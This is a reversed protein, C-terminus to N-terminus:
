IDQPFVTKRKNQKVREVARELISLVVDNLKTPTQSSMSFGANKIYKGVNSRVIVIQKEEM